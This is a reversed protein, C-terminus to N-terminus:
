MLLLRLPADEGRYLLCEFLWIWSWRSDITSCRAELPCLRICNSSADSHRRGEDDPVYFGAVGTGVMTAFAFIM